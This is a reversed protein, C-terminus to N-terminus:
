PILSLLMQYSSGSGRLEFYPLHAAGPLSQANPGSTWSFRASGVADTWIELFITGLHDDEDLRDLTRETLRHLLSRDIQELYPRLPDMQQGGVAIKLSTAMEANFGAISGPSDDDSEVLNLAMILHGGVPPFETWVPVRRIAASDRCSLSWSQTAGPTRWTGSEWAPPAYSRYFASLLYPEDQGLRDNSSDCTLQELGLFAGYSSNLSACAALVALSISKLFSSKM